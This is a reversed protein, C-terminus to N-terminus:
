NVLKTVMDSGMESFRDLLDRLRSDEALNRAECAAYHIVLNRLSSGGDHEGRGSEQYAYEILDLVHSINRKNLSLECLDRHLSKLCQTRLSDVLYRTAFVYLKGHFVLDPITSPSAERGAFRLQRFQEWLGDYPYQVYTVVPKKKQAEYTFESRFISYKHQYGMYADWEQVTADEPEPEPHLSHEEAVAAEPEDRLADQEAEKETSNSLNTDHTKESRQPTKYAGLCAFECFGIFTDEEVDDLVVHGEISEKM